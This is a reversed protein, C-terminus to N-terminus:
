AARSCTRRRAAASTSGRCRRRSPRRVAHRHGARRDRADATRGDARHRRAHPRGMPRRPERESVAYDAVVADREVGVADLLSRWPSAPATRAPPATCSSRPRRQRRRNGRRRPAVNPSPQRARQRVGRRVVDRRARADPRVARRPPSRRSSRSRWAPTSPATPARRRRRRRHARRRPAAARGGRVPAIPPCATPRM